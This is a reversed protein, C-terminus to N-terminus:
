RPSPGTCVKHVARACRAVHGGKREQTANCIGRCLTACRTHVGLLSLGKGAGNNVPCTKSLKQFSFSHRIGTVYEYRLAGYPQVSHM